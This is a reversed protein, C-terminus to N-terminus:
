AVRTEVLQMSFVGLQYELNECIAGALKNVELEDQQAVADFYQHAKRVGWLRFDSLQVATPTNELYDICERMMNPTPKPPHSGRANWLSHNVLPTPIVLGYHTRFRNELSRSRKSYDKEPSFVHHRNWNPPLVLSM